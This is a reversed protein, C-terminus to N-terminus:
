ANTLALVLIILYGVVFTGTLGYLVSQPYGGQTYGSVRLWYIKVLDGLLMLGAFILLLSGPGPSTFLAYVMGWHAVNNIIIFIMAIIERQSYRDFIGATLGLALVVLVIVQILRAGTPPSFTGSSLANFLALIAAVFAVLKIGTEIWGLASWNAIHWQKPTNNATM